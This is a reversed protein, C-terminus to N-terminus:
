TWGASGNRSPGPRDDANSSSFNQQYHVVSQMVLPVFVDTPSELWVGAFGPPAVGVVTFRAGNLSVTRGLVNAGSQFRRRWFGHSLVAVPHGGIVRNDEPGLFRGLWPSLGLTAFCEGSVLQLGTPAADGAGDVRGVHAGGPESRM